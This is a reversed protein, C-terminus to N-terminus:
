WLTFIETGPPEHDCKMYRESTLLSKLLLGLTVHLHGSAPNWHRKGKGKGMIHTIIGRM